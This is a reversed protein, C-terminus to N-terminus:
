SSATTATIIESPFTMQSLMERHLNGFGMSQMVPLLHVGRCGGMMDPSLQYVRDWIKEYFHEGKTMNILVLRGTPKLVRRFEQLVHEFDGEPLLDFMYNNVLLDFHHDPFDLAYADGVKLSYNHLGTKRAKEHAQELMADTLDIGYTQGDPNATLIEKFTLGTGVAVELIREGNRIAALELSRNRANTETLRGWIDYTKAKRRYSDIVQTKNLRANLM